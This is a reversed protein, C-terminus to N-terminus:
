AGDRIVFADLLRRVVEESSIQPKSEKSIFVVPINAVVTLVTAKSDGSQDRGLLAISPLRRNDNSADASAPALNSVVQLRADQSLSGTARDSVSKPVSGPQPFFPTLPMILGLCM